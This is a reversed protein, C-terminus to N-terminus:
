LFAGQRVRLPSPMGKSLMKKAVNVGMYKVNQLLRALQTSQYNEKKDQKAM